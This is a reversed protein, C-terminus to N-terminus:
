DVFVVLVSSGGDVPGCLAILLSPRVRDPVQVDVSRIAAATGKLKKWHSVIDVHRLGGDHHLWGRCDYNRRIAENILEEM